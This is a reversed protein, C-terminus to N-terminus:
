DNTGKGQKFRFISVGDQDYVKEFLPSAEYWALNESCCQRESLGWYLYDIQFKAVIGAVDSRGPQEYLQEIEESRADVEPLQSASVYYRSFQPDGLATQREGFVPVLSFTDEEARYYAQISAQGGPGSQVIADPPTQTRMWAAAKKGPASIYTLKDSNNVKLHVYEYALLNPVASACFLLLAVWAVTRQRVGREILHVLFTGSFILMPIRLVVGLKQSAEWTPLNRPVLFMIIFLVSLLLWLLGWSRSRMEQDRLCVVVGASGLVFMPGLMVFFHLPAMLQLKSVHVYWSNGDGLLMDLSSLLAYTALGAVGIIVGSLITVTFSSLAGRPAAGDPKHAHRAGRFNPRLGRMEGLAQLALYSGAWVFGFVIIFFSFGSSLVLIIAAALVRTLRHRETREILLSIVILLSVLTAFHHPLYLLSQFFYGVAPLAIAGLWTGELAWHTPQLSLVAKFPAQYSEALLALGLVVILAPTKTVFRRLLHVFVFVFAVNVLLTSLLLVEELAVSSGALRYVLAPFVMQFWYYHLTEGGLYPNDPPVAGKSLEAGFALSRLFDRNFYPAYAYSEGVQRGVNFFPVAVVVLVLILGVTIALRTTAPNDDQIASLPHTTWRGLLFLLAASLLAAVLATPATLGLGLAAMLVSSFTTILLGLILTHGLSVPRRAFEPGYLLRCAFWGPIACVIAGLLFWACTAANSIVLGLLLFSCLALGLIAPSGLIQELSQKRSDSLKIHNPKATLSSNPMQPM